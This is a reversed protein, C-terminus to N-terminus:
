KVEITGRISVMTKGADMNEVTLIFSYSGPAVEVNFAPDTKAKWQLDFEMEQSPPMNYLKTAGLSHWVAMGYVITGNSNMITLEPMSVDAAPGTIKLSIEFTEGIKVSLGSRNAELGSGGGLDCAYTLGNFEALSAATGVGFGVYLTIGVGM